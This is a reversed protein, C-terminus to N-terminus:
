TLRSVPTSVDKLLGYYRGVLETAEKDAMGSYKAFTAAPGIEEVSKRLEVSQPDDPENCHLAAAAALAIMEYPLGHEMAMKMPYAFYLNGGLKRIPDRGVRSVLDQLHPNSFRSIIIDM